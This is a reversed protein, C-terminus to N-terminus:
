DNYIEKIDTNNLINVKDNDSLQTFGKMVACDGKELGQGIVAGYSNRKKIVVARKCAHKDVVVWLIDQGDEQDIITNPVCIVDFLTGIHVYVVFWDSADVPKDFIAKIYFMGTDFSIDNNIESISGIISNSSPKIYIDQGIVFKEQIAKPVYGEFIENGASRLTLKEFLSVNQPSILKVFVPKGNQQWQSFTSAVPKNRGFCVQQQKAIVFVILLLVCIFYILIQKKNM